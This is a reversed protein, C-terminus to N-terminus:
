SQPPRPICREFLTQVIKGVQEARTAHQRENYFVFTLLAIQSILVALLLPNTRLADIIGAVARGGNSLTGM